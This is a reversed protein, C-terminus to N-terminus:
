VGKKNLEALRDYIFKKEIREDMTLPNNFRPSRTSKIFRVLLLAQEEKIILYPLLAELFGTVDDVGLYWMFGQKHNTKKPKGQPAILGIGTTQILWSLVALNTNTINCFVAYYDPGRSKIGMTGEGDMLGACYAAEAISLIRM